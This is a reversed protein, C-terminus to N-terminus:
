SGIMGKGGGEEENKVAEDALLGQDDEGEDVHAYESGDGSSLLLIAFAAGNM